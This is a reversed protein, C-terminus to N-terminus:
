ADTIRLFRGSENIWSRPLPSAVQPSSNAVSNVSYTTPALHMSASLPSRVQVHVGGHLTRAKRQAGSRDHKGRLLWSIYVM